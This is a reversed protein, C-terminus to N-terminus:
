HGGVVVLDIGIGGLPEAVEDGGSVDCWAIDVLSGDDVHPGVIQPAVRLAMEEGADTSPRSSESKGAPAVISM